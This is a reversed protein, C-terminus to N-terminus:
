SGVTALVGGLGPGELATRTKRGASLGRVNVNGSGQVSTGAKMRSGTAGSGPWGSWYSAKWVRLGLGARAGM